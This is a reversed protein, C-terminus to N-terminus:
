TQCRWAALFGNVGDTGISPGHAVEAWRDFLARVIADWADGIIPEQRQQRQQGQKRTREKPPSIDPFVRFDADHLTLTLLNPGGSM